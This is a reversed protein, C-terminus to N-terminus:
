EPASVFGQCRKTGSCSFSLTNAEGLNARDGWNCGKHCTITTEGQPANIEIEVSSRQARGVSWGGFVLAFAIAIRVVRRKM